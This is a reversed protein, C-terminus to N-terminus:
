TLKKGGNELYFGNSGSGGGGGGGGGTVGNTYINFPPQPTISGAPPYGGDVFNGEEDIGNGSPRPAFPRPKEPHTPPLYERLTGQRVLFM